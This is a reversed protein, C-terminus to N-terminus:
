LSCVKPAKQFHRKIYLKYALQLDNSYILYLLNGLSRSNTCNTRLFFCLSNLIQFAWIEAITEVAWRTHGGHEVIEKRTRDAEAVSAEKSHRVLAM